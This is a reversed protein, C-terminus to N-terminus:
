ECTPLTTERRSSDLYDVSVQARCYLEFQAALEDRVSNAEARSIPPLCDVNILM